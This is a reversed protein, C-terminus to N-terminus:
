WGEVWEQYIIDWRSPLQKGTTANGIHFTPAKTLSRM